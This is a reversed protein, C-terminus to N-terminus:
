AFLMKMGRTMSERLSRSGGSTEKAKEYHYLKERDRKREHAKAAAEQAKELEKRKRRLEESAHEYADTSERRRRRRHERRAEEDEAAPSDDQERRRPRERRQQQDSEHSPQETRRERPRSIALDKEKRDKNIRLLFGTDSKPASLDLLRPRPATKEESQKSDRTSSSSVFRSMDDSRNSTEDKRTTHRRSIKHVKALALMDETEKSRSTSGSGHSERRRRYSHSGDMTSKSSMKYRHPREEGSAHSYRKYSPSPPANELYEEGELIALEKSGDRADVGEPAIHEASGAEIVQEAEEGSDQPKASDAVHAAKEDSAEVPPNSETKATAIEEEANHAANEDIVPKVHDTTVLVPESPPEPTQQEAEQNQKVTDSEQVTSDIPEASSTEMVTQPEEITTSLNVEETPETVKIPGKVDHGKSHDTTPDPPTEKLIKIDNEPEVNAPASDDATPSGRVDNKDDTLLVVEAVVLEAASATNPIKVEAENIAPVRDEPVDSAPAKAADTNDGKSDLSSVPTPIDTHTEDKALKSEDDVGLTQVTMGSELAESVAVTDSSHASDATGGVELLPEEDPWGGPIEEGKSIPQKLENESTSAAPMTEGAKDGDAANPMGHDAANVDEFVDVPEAAAQSVSVEATTQNSDRTDKPLGTGPTEAEPTDSTEPVELTPKVSHTDPSAEDVLMGPSNKTMPMAEESSPKDSDPRNESSDEIPKQINEPEPVDAKLGEAPEGVPAPESEVVEIDESVKGVPEATHGEAKADETSDEVPKPEPHIAVSDATPKDLAEAEPECKDAADITEVTQEPEPPDRNLDELPSKPPEPAASEAEPPAEEEPPTEKEPPSPPEEISGPTEVPIQVLLPIEETKKAKKVKLEKKVEKEKKKSNSDSTQKVEKLKKKTEAKQSPKKEKEKMMKGKTSKEKKSTAAVVPPSPAPPPPPPPAPLLDDDAAQSAEVKSEPPEVIEIASAESSQAINNDEPDPLKMEAPPPPPSPFDEEQSASIPEVPAPPSIAEAGTHVDEDAAAPM